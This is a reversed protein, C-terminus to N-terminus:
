EDGFRITTHKDVEFSDMILNSMQSFQEARGKDFFLAVLFRDEKFLYITKRNDEIKGNDYNKCSNAIIVFNEIGSFAERNILCYTINKLHRFNRCNVCSKDKDM